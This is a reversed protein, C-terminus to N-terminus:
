CIDLLRPAAAILIANAKEIDKYGIQESQTVAIMAHKRQFTVAPVMRWNLM